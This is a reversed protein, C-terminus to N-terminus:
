FHFRASLLYHRDKTANLDQVIGGEIVWHQHVRQLGATIQYVIGDNDQWRSNLELVSNLEPLIGWDPRNAPSLRYQWSVDYRGSAPRNLARRTCPTLILNMELRFTHLCLDPRSLETEVM